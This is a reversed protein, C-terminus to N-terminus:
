EEVLEVMGMYPHVLFCVRRGSFAIAEHKESCMVYKKDLLMKTDEDFAGTVYCIHYPSNGIKKMLDHVVSEKSIPSVLEILYGDKKLFCINIQRYDDLVTDQEITYGLDVFAAKAKDMKRVLYGIHHIRM